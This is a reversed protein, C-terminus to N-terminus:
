VRPLFPWWLFKHMRAVNRALPICTTLWCLVAQVSKGNECYVQGVAAVIVETRQEYNKRCCVIQLEEFVFMLSLTFPRAFMLIM